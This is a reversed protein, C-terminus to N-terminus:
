LEGQDWPIKPVDDLYGLKTATSYAEWTFPDADIIKLREPERQQLAQKMKFRNIALINITKIFHLFTLVELSPIYRWAQEVAIVRKVNKLELM